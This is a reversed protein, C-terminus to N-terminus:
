HLSQIDATALTQITSQKTQIDCIAGTSPPQYPQSQACQESSQTFLFVKQSQQGVFYRYFCSVPTQSDREITFDGCHLRRKVILAPGPPQPYHYRRGLVFLAHASQDMKGVQM